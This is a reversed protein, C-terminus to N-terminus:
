AALVTHFVSFPGEIENAYQLEVTVKFFLEQIYNKELANIPRKYITPRNIWYDLGDRSIQLAQSDNWLQVGKMNYNM